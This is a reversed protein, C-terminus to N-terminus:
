LNSDEVPRWRILSMALLQHVPVTDLDCIPRALCTRNGEYAEGFSVASRSM